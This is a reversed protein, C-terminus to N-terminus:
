PTTAIEVENTLSSNFEQLGAMLKMIDVPNIAKKGDQKPLDIIKINFAKRAQKIMNITSGCVNPLTKVNHLIELLTLLASLNIMTSEASNLLNQLRNLMQGLDFAKGFEGLEINTLNLISRVENTEIVKKLAEAQEKKSLKKM